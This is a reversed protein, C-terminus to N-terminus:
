PKRVRFFRGEGAVVPESYPSSPTPLVDTWQGPLSSSWQLQGGSIVAPLFQPAPTKPDIRLAGPYTYHNANNDNATPALSITIEGSANPRIQAVTATNTVNNAANLAGFGSNDGTFSNGIFLVRHQAHGALPILLAAVVAM